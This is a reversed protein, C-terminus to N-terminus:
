ENKEAFQAKNLKDILDVTSDSKVDKISALIAQPITLVSRKETIALDYSSSILIEGMLSLNQDIEDEGRMTAVKSCNYAPSKVRLLRCNAPRNSYVRCTNDAALFVCKSKKEELMWYDLQQHPEYSAQFELNDLTKQSLEGNELTLLKRALLMGEDPTVYVLKHCCHACGKKCTINLEEGYEKAKNDEENMLDDLTSQLFVGRIEGPPVDMLSKKFELLTEGVFATSEKPFEPDSLITTLQPTTYFQTDAVVTPEAKTNTPKADLILKEYYKRKASGKKSSKSKVLTRFIPNKLLSQFSLPDKKKSKTATKAGKKLGGLLNNSM